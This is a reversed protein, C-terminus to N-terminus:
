RVAAYSGGKVFGLMHGTFPRERPGEVARADTRRVEPKGNVFFDVDNAPLTNDLPTALLDGPRAPRVLRPTVIIVLDTENKQYSKSSFLAGLVPVDGLWPFQNQMTVSDNQLLGALVFSQGDRLEVTTSARRVTLAPVSINNAIAVKNASDIQSVEPEIKMNIVGSSLVTPTFALSVGYRKYEVSIQGLNSSVPIPFEGGALFSATDGSLAVLNPEALKRALGREELANVMVDINLGKAVLNAAIYGFPATTSGIVGAAATDLISGSTGSTVPLTTTNNGMNTLFRQAHGSRPTINWQMGLERGAQRSAEVFRVELMVQQPQDVSVSNIVEPGFQKAITVAKDLVVGDPATGTLMIRGNVATVKLKAAPFRRKLEDQLLTTDYAVEVDFVGILRKGEGYVSVRTTGLKKGLISLAKDTIPHIDAIEADGIVVDSFGADLRVDEAKGISVTVTDLRKASSLLVLRQASAAGDYGPVIPAATLALVAGAFAAAFRLLGRGHHRAKGAQPSARRSRDEHRPGEAALHRRIGKNM